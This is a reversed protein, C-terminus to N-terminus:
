EDYSFSTARSKPSMNPDIDETKYYKPEIEAMKSDIVQLLTDMDCKFKLDESYTDKLHMLGIKAQKLDDVIHVCMAKDSPKNSREYNGLVEFANNITRHVFSLTNYRNDYNIFTRSIRTRLGDPQRYMFKTNIKDGKELQGIFKLSSIVEKTSEMKVIHSSSDKFRACFKIGTIYHGYM